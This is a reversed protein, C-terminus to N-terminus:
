DEISPYQVNYPPQIQLILRAEIRALDKISPGDVTAAAIKLESAPIGDILVKVLSNHGNQFRKRISRSGKGIYLIKDGHRIAYIGPRNPLNSFTGTLEHCTAFDDQLITLIRDIEQNM